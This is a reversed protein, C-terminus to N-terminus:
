FEGAMDEEGTDDVVAAPGDFGGQWVRDWDLSRHWDADGIGRIGSGDLVISCSAIDPLVPVIRSSVVFVVKDRLRGVVTSRDDPSLATLAPWSIIFSEREVLLGPMLFMALQLLPSLSAYEEGTLITDFGAPMCDIQQLLGWARLHSRVRGLEDEGPACRGTVIAGISLPPPQRVHGCFFSRELLDRGTVSNRTLRYCFQVLTFTELQAPQLCFAVDGAQLQRSVESGPLRPEVAYVTWRPASPGPAAAPRGKDVAQGQKSQRSASPADSEIFCRLRELQPLFRSFGTLATASSSMGMIAYRVAIIYTLLLGWSQQDRAFFVGFVILIVCLVVGLFVDQLFGVRRRSLIMRTWAGITIETAPNNLFLNAWAPQNVGPHHTQSAYHLLNGLLKSREPRQEDYTRSAGVVNANLLYFPIAYALLLAIIALTLVPDLYTLVSVSALLILLPLVAGTMLLAARLVFMTDGMLVTRRHTAAEEGEFLPNRGHQGRVVVQLAKQLSREMTRRAVSFAIVEGVYTTVATFLAILLVGGGWILLTAMSADSSIKLSWFRIPADSSNAHVFLLVMGITLVRTVVGFVNLGLMALLRRHDNRLQDSVLWRAVTAFTLVRRLITAASTM